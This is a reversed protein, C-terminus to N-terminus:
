VLERIILISMSIMMLCNMVIRGITLFPETGSSEGEITSDSVCYGDVCSGTCCRVEAEASCFQADICFVATLSLTTATNVNKMENTNVNIEMTRETAVTTGSSSNVWHSFKFPPQNEVVLPLNFNEWSTITEPTTVSYEDVMVALGKPISNISVQVINPQVDVFVETTLGNDDTAYMIVKLYSNTAALFDEPEPAPFLEVNNGPTRSM